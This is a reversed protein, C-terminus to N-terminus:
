VQQQLIVIKGGLDAIRLILFHFFYWQNQIQEIKDQRILKSVNLHLSLTGSRETDSDSSFLDQSGDFFRFPFFYSLQIATHLM